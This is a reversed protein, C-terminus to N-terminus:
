TDESDIGLAADVIAVIQQEDQKTFTEGLAALVEKGHRFAAEYNPNAVKRAAEIIARRHGIGHWGGIDFEALANQLDSM